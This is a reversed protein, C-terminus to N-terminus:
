ARTKRKSTKKPRPALVSVKWLYLSALSAHKRWGAALKEMQAHEPMKKLGYVVQFGKRIALDLTPLIDPRKLTFLLFMHATWVGIGKVRVLHEVIDDNSMQPFKRPEITGDTFKLALDRIYLAKSRSLGATRLEDESLALVEQPTPFTDGFLSKFKALISAAAKTSVQQSIISRILSHFPDRPREWDKDDIFGHEKVWKALKPDRLIEEPIVYKM